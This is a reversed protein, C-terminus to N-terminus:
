TKWLGGIIDGVFGAEHFPRSQAQPTGKKRLTAAGIGDGACQPLLSEGVGHAKRSSKLL